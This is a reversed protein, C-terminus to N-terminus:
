RPKHDPRNSLFDLLAASHGVDRQARESLYWKHELLQCYLEDPDANGDAVRKLREIIPLYTQHLWHHAASAMASSRNLQASLTAKLEQIENIMQRAQREEADIGTLSLLLDRHFNRDTVIARLRVVEGGQAPRLEVQDVSFGLDNLKRVRERIRFREGAPLTVESTIESWLAQYQQRVRAGVEHIPYDDALAGMATLDMLGGGLNEEMIDLDAQRMQDSLSPRVESTEADVLYATLLGADRRFLTNYLSCDGWFVGALHLQVLLGAMADLLHDRYRALSSRMFLSHYPLSYELYRTLLVSREEGGSYTLAVGVPVVAPLRHVEMHRLLEYERDALHRPLEKLAYCAGAYNVFLVPHRSIGQPVEELRGTDAGSWEALPKSWPLDLFDPHGPRLTSSVLGPSQTAAM